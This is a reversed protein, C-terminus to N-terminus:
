GLLDLQETETEEKKEEVKAPSPKAKEAKEPEKSGGVSPKSEPKPKTEAKASAKPKAKSSKAKKAKAIVDNLADIESEVYDNAGKYADSSTIEMLESLGKEVQEVTGQIVKPTALKSRVMNIADLTAMYSKKDDESAGSPIEPMKKTLATPAYSLVVKFKGGKLTTVSFNLKENENLIEAIKEFM